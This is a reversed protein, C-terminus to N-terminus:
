RDGGAAPQSVLVRSGNPGVASVLQTTGGGPSSQTTAHAPQLQVIRQGGGPLKVVAVAPASQASTTAPRARAIAGVLALLAVLAFVAALLRRKTQESSTNM